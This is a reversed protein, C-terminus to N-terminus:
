KKKEKWLRLISSCKSVFFVVKIAWYLCCLITVLHRRLNAAHRLDEWTALAMGPACCGYIQGTTLLIEPDHPQRPVLDSESDNKKTKIRTFFGEHWIAKHSFSSMKTMASLVSLSRSDTVPCTRNSEMKLNFGHKHWVWSEPSWTTDRHHITVLLGCAEEFFVFFISLFSFLSNCTSALLWLISCVNSSGTLGLVQWFGRVKVSRLPGWTYLSM